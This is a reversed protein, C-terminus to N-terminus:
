LLYNRVKLIEDFNRFGEITQINAIINIKRGKDGLLERLETVADSSNVFSAVVFDLQFTLNITYHSAFM